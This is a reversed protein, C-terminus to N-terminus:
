HRPAAWGTSPGGRKPVCEFACACVAMHLINVDNGLWLLLDPGRRGPEPNDLWLVGSVSGRWFFFTLPNAPPQAACGCWQQAWSIIPHNIHPWQGTLWLACLKLCSVESAEPLQQRMQVISLECPTSRHLCCLDGHQKWVSCLLWKLGGGGFFFSSTWSSHGYKIKWQVDAELTRINLFM